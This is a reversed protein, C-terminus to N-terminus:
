IKKYNIHYKPFNIVNNVINQIYKARLIANTIYKSM